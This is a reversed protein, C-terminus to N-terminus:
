FLSSQLSRKRLTQKAQFPSLEDGLLDAQTAQQFAARNPRQPVGLMQMVKQKFQLRQVQQAQPSQVGIGRAVQMMYSADSRDLGSRIDTPFKAAVAKTAVDSALESPSKTDGLEHSAQQFAGVAEQPSTLALEALQQVTQSYKAAEELHRQKEYTQFQRLKSLRQPVFGLSYGLSEADTTPVPSGNADLIQGGNQMFDVGRRIATPSFEKAAKGWDGDYAGKLGALVNSVVGATPGFVANPQWGDYENMGVVGGIAFRSAFDLPLGVSALLSNAGGKMALDALGGGDEADEDLTKSLGAYLRGKLDVGLIKELLTLGAGVFPMGLAGAAALQLGLQTMAAKRASSREAPALEPSRWKAVNTALQGLWGLNYTQLGYALHGVLKHQGEFPAVPRGARGGQYTASRVIDKAFDYAEAPTMGKQKALRLGSIFATRVNFHETTAYAKLSVGALARLPSTAKEALTALRGKKAIYSLDAAADVENNRLEDFTGFGVGGEEVFRQLLKREEPDKWKAYEDSIGLRRKVGSAALDWTFAGVDKAASTTLQAAKWAPLGRAVLEPTLTMWSQMVNNLHTPIVGAMYYLFNGQALARGFKSDPTRYQNLAKDFWAVLEPQDRLAPNAKTYALRANLEVDATKRAMYAMFADHVAVMDLEAPAMTRSGPTVLQKSMAENLKLDAEFDTSKKLEEIVDPAVGAATLIAIQKDQHEKLLENFGDPLELSRVGGQKSKEYRITINKGYKAEQMKTWAAEAGKPVPEAKVPSKGDPLVVSLLQDGFRMRSFFGKRGPLDQNLRRSFGGQLFSKLDEVKTESAAALELSRQFVEDGLQARATALQQQGLMQQRPDVSTANRQGELLMQADKPANQFREPLAKSIYMAIYMPSEVNATANILSDQIGKVSLHAKTTYNNVADRTAQPALMLRKYLEQGKPDSSNKLKDITVESAIRDPDQNWTWIDSILKNARSDKTQEVRNRDKRAQKDIIVVGSNPDIQGYLPFLADNHLQTMRPGHDYMASVSGAIDPNRQAQQHALSFWNRYFKGFASQEKEKGVVQAYRLENEGQTFQSTRADNWLNESADQMRNLDTLDQDARKFEKQARDLMKQISLMTKAGDTMKVQKGFMAAKVYSFFRHSWDLMTKYLGRVPQPSLLAMSRQVEGGMKPLFWGLGVINAMLEDPDNREALLEKTVDSNKLSDPLHDQIFAMADELEQGGRGILEKATQYAQTGEIFPKLLHGSEHFMVGVGSDVGSSRWPALLLRGKARDDESAAGYVYGKEKAVDNLLLGLERQQKPLMAEVANMLPALAAITEQSEGSARAARGFLNAFSPILENKMGLAARTGPWYILRTDGLQANAQVFGKRRYWEPLQEKNLQGTASPENVIPINHKDAYALLQDLVNNGGGKGEIGSVIRNFYYVPGNMDFHAGDTLQAEASSMTPLHYFAPNEALGETQPLKDVGQRLKQMKLRESPTLQAALLESNRKAFPESQLKDLSYLRATIDSKPKGSADRFVPSGVLEPDRKTNETIEGGDRRQIAEIEGRRTSEYTSGDPTTLTWSTIGQSLQTEKAKAHIGFKIEEGESGTLRKLEAPLTRDYHLRMGASQSVEKNQKDRVTVKGGERQVAYRDSDPYANRAALMAVDPAKSEPSTMHTRPPGQNEWEGAANKKVSQVEVHWNGEPDGHLAIVRDFGGYSPVIRGPVFFDKVSEPKILEEHVVKGRAATDHGESMMATEADSLAIYDAGIEQAHKIAAKLALSEYASLLPHDAVFDYKSKLKSLEQEFTAISSKDGQAQANKLGRLLNQEQTKDIESLSRRKQAWDSQVEVVHFVKKGNPLTEEYGRYFSVVNTDESGFHPGSYLVGQEINDHRESGSSPGSLEKTPVRVLGEVYGPMDSEAKPSIGAWRPDDKGPLTNDADYHIDALEHILQQDRQPLKDVVESDLPEEEGRRNIYLESDMGIDVEYGLTELEHQIQAKRAQVQAESPKVKEPKQIFKKVEVVPGNKSLGEVLKELNVFGKDTFADPVLQRYLQVETDKLGSNKLVEVNVVSSKGLNKKGFKWSGEVNSLEPLSWNMGLGAKPRLQATKLSNFSLGEKPNYDEMMQQVEDPDSEGNLERDIHAADEQLSTEESLQELDPDVAEEVGAKLVKTKKQKKPNLHDWIAEAFAKKRVELDVPKDAFTRRAAKAMDPSVLKPALKAGTDILDDVTPDVFQAYWEDFNDYVAKAGLKEVEDKPRLDPVAAKVIKTAREAQEGYARKRQELTKYNPKVEFKGRILRPSFSTISEDKNEANLKDAFTQAEEITKFKAARKGAEDRVSPGATDPRLNINKFSEKLKELDNSGERKWSLWKSLYATQVDKTEGEKAPHNKIADLVAKIESAAEANKRNGEPTPPHKIQSLRIADAFANQLDAQKATVKGAKVKEENATGVVARQLAEDPSALNASVLNEAKERVSNLDLTDGRGQALQEAQGLVAPVTEATVASAPPVVVHQLAEQKEAATWLTFAKSPIAVPAAPNAAKAAATQQTWLTFSQAPPINPANLPHNPETWISFAQSPPIPPLNPINPPQDGWLTFPNSPLKAKGAKVDLDFNRVMRGDEIAQIAALKAKPDKIFNARARQQAYQAESAAREMELPDTVLSAAPPQAFGGEKPVNRVVSPHMLHFADTAAFPLYGLGAQLVWDKLTTDKYPNTIPEGKLLSEAAQGAVNTGEMGAFGGVLSGAQRILRDPITNAVTAVGPVGGALESAMETGGEIGLAKLFPFKKAIDLGLEGVKNGVAGGVYPAAASTAGRVASGSEGYSELGSLASTVGLGVDALTAAAAPELSMGGSLPAALMAPLWTAVTKPIERGAARGTEPNGGFLDFTNAGFEGTAQKWNEPISQDIWYNAQGALRGPLGRDGQSFDNGGYLENAAKSFRQLNMGEPAVGRYLDYVQNFSLPM